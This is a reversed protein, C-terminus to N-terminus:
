PFWSGASSQTCVATRFMKRHSAPPTGEDEAPTEAAIESRDGALLLEVGASTAEPEEVLQVVVEVAPEGEGGEAYRHFGKEAVVEEEHEAM